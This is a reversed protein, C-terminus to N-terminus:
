DKSKVVVTFILPLIQCIMIITIVAIMTNFGKDRIDLRKVGIVYEYIACFAIGVIGLPISYQQVLHLIYAVMGYVDSGYKAKYDNVSKLQEDKIDLLTTATSEEAKTSENITNNTYQIKDDKTNNVINSANITVCNCLLLIIIVIITTIYKKLRYMKEGKMIVNQM